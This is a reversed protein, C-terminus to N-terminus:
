SEQTIRIINDIRLSSVLKNNAIYCCLNYLRNDVERLVPVAPHFIYNAVSAASRSLQGLAM